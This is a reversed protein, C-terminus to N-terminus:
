ALWEHIDPVTIRLRRVFFEQIRRFNLLAMIRHSVVMEDLPRRNDSVACFRFTTLVINLRCLFWIFSATRWRAFWRCVIISVLPLFRIVVRLGPSLGAADVTGVLALCHSLSPENAPRVSTSANM